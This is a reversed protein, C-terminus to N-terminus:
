GSCDHEVIDGSTNEGCDQDRDESGNGMAQGALYRRAPCPGISRVGNLPVDGGVPDRHLRRTVEM